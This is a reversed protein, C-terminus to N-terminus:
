KFLHADAYLDTIKWFTVAGIQQHRLSLGLKDREMLKRGNRWRGVEPEGAVAPTAAAFSAPPIISASDGACSWPGNESAKRM